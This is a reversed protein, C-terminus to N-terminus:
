LMVCASAECALYGDDDSDPVESLPHIHSFPTCVSMWHLSALFDELTARSAKLPHAAVRQTQWDDLISRGLCEVMNLEDDSDIEM